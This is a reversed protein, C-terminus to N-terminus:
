SVIISGPPWNPDVACRLHRHRWKSIYIWENKTRISAYVSWVLPRWVVARPGFEAECTETELTNDRSKSYEL